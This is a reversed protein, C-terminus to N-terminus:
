ASRKALVQPWPTWMAYFIISAVMLVGLRAWKHRHVSWYLALTVTLFFVFQLSHFYM